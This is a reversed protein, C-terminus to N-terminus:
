RGHYGERQFMNVCYAIWVAAALRASQWGRGFVQVQIIQLGIQSMDQGSIDKTTNVKLTNAKPTNFM